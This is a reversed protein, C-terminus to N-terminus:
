KAVMFAFALGQSVIATVLLFLGPKLANQAGSAVALVITLFAFFLALAGTM